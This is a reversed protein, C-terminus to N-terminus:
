SISSNYASAAMYLPSSHLLSTRARPLRISSSSRLSRSRESISEVLPWSCFDVLHDPINSSLLISSFLRTLYTRRRDSLSRLSTSDIGCITLAKQQLAELRRANKDSLGCWAASSYELVPRIFSRYVHLLSQSSFHYNSRLFRLVAMMSSIKSVLSDVHVSWSLSASLTIGLHKHNSVQNVLRDGLYVHLSPSPARPHHFLMSVTKTPHITLQHDNVWTTVANIDRQLILQASSLSLPPTITCTDDAFCNTESITTHTVSNIYLIFLTPSLPSGQPVGAKPSGATSLCDGVSVQQARTTLFDKIWWFLSGSIGAAKLKGLLAKHWVSDFAKKIDYFIAAVVKGSDLATFLETSLRFLQLPASDGRRFGSQAPSILHNTNMHQYVAKNVLTELVKSVNSLLSIPRYNDASDKRGSKHIARIKSHKWATPLQGRELSNNFLVALSTSIGPACLRLCSNEVCDFGPAKTANLKSLLNFVDEPSVQLDTLHPLSPLPPPCIKAIPADPEPTISKSLFFQNLTDAKEKDSSAPHCGTRLLHPIETTQGSKNRLRRIFSWFNTTKNNSPSRLQTEMSSSFEKKARRILATVRNRQERFNQLNETTPHTKTLSFLRKKLKCEALLTDSLWPPKPQVNKITKSPVHRTLCTSFITVWQSWQHDLSDPSNRTPWPQDLLDALLDVTNAKRINWLRRPAQKEECRKLKMLCHISFHDSSGLPAHIAPHEFLDPQSTIILDLLSGQGSPSPLGQGGPPRTVDRVIQKLGFSELLNFLMAGATDTPGDALWQGSKANFDGMIIILPSSALAKQISEELASIFDELDQPASTPPRYVTGIVVKKKDVKAEIWIDEGNQSQIDPRIKCPHKSMIAVGGGHRNRDRRCISWNKNPKLLNDPTHADLHTETIAILDMYTTLLALDSQQLPSLIGRANTLCISLNNNAM